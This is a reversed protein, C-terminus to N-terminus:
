EDWQTATCKAWFLNLIPQKELLQDIKYVCNIHRSATIESLMNKM